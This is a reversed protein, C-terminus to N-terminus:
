EMKIRLKNLEKRTFYVIPVVRKNEKIMKAFRHNGDLITGYKDYKDELVILPYKLDANKIRKIHEPFKKPQMLVQFISVFCEKKSWCPNYVWHKIDNMKYKIVKKTKALDWLDEQQWAYRFDERMVDETLYAYSRSEKM